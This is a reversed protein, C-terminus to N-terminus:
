SLCSSRRELQLAERNMRRALSRFYGAVKPDRLREADKWTDGGVAYAFAATLPSLAQAESICDDSLLEQWPTKYANIIRSEFEASDDRGRRFHQLLYEFSFFPQGVYTEAWDLFVWREASAFVNWPNLDVHGLTTPIRLDALLTIADDVLVKLLNIEERTLIAPPTKPQEDMLRAVLDFFRDISALLADCRLDHAGLPLLSESSSISEVQLKAFNAAAREWAEIEKAEGLNRGDAERSLWGNWEPMTALIEPMVSPFLEALKLTIPFERLNPAGVAKFWVASGTTEFRILNFAPGANFQRLSDILELGLPQIVGSTWNRLTSLWGRRAFPSSADREYQALQHLCRELTRVDAEHLFSNVGLSRIATWEMESSIRGDKWCEMVEYHDENSNRDGPSCELTFLCVADCGWDRKVVAALNEAVREWRPIEATPLAFGAPTSKVLIDAGDPGFVILRCTVRETQQQSEMLEDSM